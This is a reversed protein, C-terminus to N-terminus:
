QQAASIAQPSLDYVSWNIGSYVPHLSPDKFPAVWYNAGWGAFLRMRKVPDRYETHHLIMERKAAEVFARPNGEILMAAGAFDHIVPRLAGARIQRPGVFKADRDTNERIWHLVDDMNDNGALDVPRSFWNDPWLFRAVDDGLVPVRDFAPLRSFVTLLVLLCSAGVVVARGHRLRDALQRCMLIFVMAAVVVSPVIIYKGTRVLQFAFLPQYGFRRLIKEALFPLMSTLVCGLAFAGLAILVYKVSRRVNRPLLLCALWPLIILMLLKPHLWSQLYSLPSWFTPGIRMHLAQELQVPDVVSARGSAVLYTWIFPTWGVLMLVGGAVTRICTARIKRSEALTWALDGLLMACGVGVGSIPHINTILGCLLCAWLWSQFSRPRRLWLWLVWPVLALFLTRPLMTWLGAIGWIENGAPWIVGRALFALIAALWKDGWITFLLWWGWMYIMSTLLLLLNLGRLYNHDPLSLVRVLNVFAPIYFKTDEPRGVILDGRFRDPYDKISCVALINFQDGSLSSFEARMGQWFFSLSLALSFLGFGMFALRAGIASKRESASFGPTLCFTEDM